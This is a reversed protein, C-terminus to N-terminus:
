RYSALGHSNSIEDKNLGIFHEGNVSAPGEWTTIDEALISRLNPRGEYLTVPSSADFIDFASTFKEKSDNRSETPSAESSELGMTSLDKELVPVETPLRDTVFIRIDIDLNSPASRIVSRLM